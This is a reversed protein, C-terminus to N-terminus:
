RRLLDNLIENALKISIPEHLSPNALRLIIEAFEQSEGSLDIDDRCEIVNAWDEVQFASLEHAIFRSLINQIDLSTLRLLPTDVDWTLQALEALVSDVPLHYEVLTRLLSTRYNDNAVAVSM